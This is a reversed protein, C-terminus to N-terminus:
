FIHVKNHLDTHVDENLLDIHVDQNLKLDLTVHKLSIAM